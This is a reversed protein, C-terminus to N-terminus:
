DRLKELFRDRRVVVRTVRGVGVLGREDRASVTFTLRHGEVRELVAEARVRGGVRTPALHDLQMRTGVTTSGEDIRGALAAMTAEECLALLRPTALAPVDGSHVSAATDCEAVVLTVEGRLGPETLVTPVILGSTM